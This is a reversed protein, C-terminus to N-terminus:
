MQNLTVKNNIFIISVNYLTKFIETNNPWCHVQKSFNSYYKYGIVNNNFEILDLQIKDFFFKKASMSNLPWHYLSIIFM